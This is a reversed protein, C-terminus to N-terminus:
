HSMMEVLVFIVEDVSLCPYFRFCSHELRVWDRGLTVVFRTGLMSRTRRGRVEELLDGICRRLV